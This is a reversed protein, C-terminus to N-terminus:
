ELNYALNPIIRQETDTLRLCFGTWPSLNWEPLRGRAIKVLVINRGKELRAPITFQTSNFNFDYDSMKFLPNGNLFLQLGYPAGAHFVVDRATPSDVYTMAYGVLREMSRISKPNTVTLQPAYTERVDFIGAMDIYGAHLDRSAHPYWRLPANDRGVYLKGLDIREEPVYTRQDGTGDSNDFPGLLNWLYMQGGGFRLEQVASQSETVLHATATFEENGTLAVFPPAKVSFRCLFDRGSDLRAITSEDLPTANWGDPLSLSLTGKVPSPLKNRVSAILQITGPPQIGRFYRDVELELRIAAKGELPHGPQRVPKGDLVLSNSGKTLYVASVGQFRHRDTLEAMGADSLGYKINLHYPVIYDPSFLRQMAQLDFLDSPKYIHWLIADVKKREKAIEQYQYSDGSILIRYGDLEVIYSQHFPYSLSYPVIDDTLWGHLTRYVTTKIQHHSLEVPLGPKPAPTLFQEPPVVGDLADHSDLPAIVRLKPNLTLLQKIGAVSLHDGHNHTILILDPPPDNKQRFASFHRIFNAANPPLPDVYVVGSPGQIVFDPGGFHSITVESAAIAARIAALSALAATLRLAFIPFNSFMLLHVLPATASTSLAALLRASLFDAHM